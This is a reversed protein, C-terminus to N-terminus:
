SPMPPACSHSPNLRNSKRDEEMKGLQEPTAEAQYKAKWESQPMGYILTRAEDKSMERDHERAAELVWDALCNRCFGGVGMLEINQVDTRHRLHGVLRRFATAALADDIQIDDTM